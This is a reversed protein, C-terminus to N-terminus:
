SLLDPKYICENQQSQKQLSGQSFCVMIFNVTKIVIQMLNNM